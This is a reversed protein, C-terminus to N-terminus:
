FAKMDYDYGLCRNEIFLIAKKRMANATVKKYQNLISKFTNSWYFMKNPNDFHKPAEQFETQPENITIPMKEGKLKKRQKKKM